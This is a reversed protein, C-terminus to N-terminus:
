TQEEEELKHLRKTLNHIRRSYMAIQQRIRTRELEKRLHHRATLNHGSEAIEKPTVIRVKM